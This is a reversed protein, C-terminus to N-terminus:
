ILSILAKRERGDLSVKLPQKFRVHKFFETEHVIEQDAIIDWNIFDTLSSNQVSSYGINMTTVNHFFHSGLSSDLPFDPLSIEVIVKANSIQSWSVPIGLFQDQTGWRGPGILIYKRNNRLMVSNLFEIEKVMSLTKMKDFKDPDAYILDYTNLSHGNGLSSETYLVTSERRIDGITIHEDHQTSVIPKIQLLYFTPLGNESPSLDVAWEIEIPSGMSEKATTLLNDILKAMPLYNYKLINAFNIIRPGYTDLGTDIRDNRIDYVSACHKLTGHKEAEIVDLIALTATEGNNVYDVTKRNLDLAHFRTQTSAITDKVSLIDTEPYKPSFRFSKEGGVVYRGLGIAAMVFGEEPKMHSVPYYNYSQATGSIHPYYYGNHESGVLEQLIVAMKEEELKQNIVKFYNRSTVSFISAYVMKVAKVLHELNQEINQNNPLIFTDFVGAFPQNISDESLSSSRVALPKRTQELFRRLKKLLNESLRGNLFHQRLELYSINSSFSLKHLKNSKIFLDFEDTGIIATIPTKINIEKSFDSFDLNYILSNIFALGRGKGGLSGSALSVINKEDINEVEGFNLVKGRRKEAKYDYIIKLLSQRFDEMNPFDNVKLPNLIKALKIEGHSMMWLSFQNEIGQVYLTEAPIQKIVAAFEKLTSAKALAQGKGDRFVFEGFGLEKVLFHKLDNLLRVSNKNIFAINMEEALKKNSSDVSQLIVPLSPMYEKVHKIFDIGAHKDLKGNRDFEVDSIVCLLFDKYKEAFFIADEYNRAHIIKPRSRMKSIKNIENRQEEGLLHQIQEFVISYLYQLYRSYYQPSDEVLIIVRVLGIKTDNEVNARDEISKVIAFFIQSNGNWVFLKDISPTNYVLEEFHKMRSKRNLLLYVPISTDQQKIEQSLHLAAKSDIGVMIIALDFHTTKLLEIAEEATSVGTIRPLSFLSYQYIEGMFQEFFSDENELMFADYLTSVFLINKVKYKMMDLYIYKDLVQKNFFLQLPQKVKTLTSRFEETKHQKIAPLSVEGIISRGKFNNIHGSVLRALNVLLQGEEKLFPGDYADPFKKLYFVQIYGKKNDFTIFNEKQFWETEKFKKSIFQQDEYVIKACTHQPYQWSLPILNCLKQLAIKISVEQGMIESTLNIGSLEKKRERHEYELKKLHSQSIAGSLMGLIIKFLQGSINKESFVHLTLLNDSFQKYEGTEHFDHSFYIDNDCVIKIGNLKMNNVLTNCTKELVISLDREKLCRSVSTLIDLQSASNM